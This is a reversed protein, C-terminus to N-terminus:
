DSSNIEQNHYRFADIPVQKIKLGPKFAFIPESLFVIIASGAM